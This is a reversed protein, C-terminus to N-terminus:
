PGDTAARVGRGLCGFLCSKGSGQGRTMDEDEADRDAAASWHATSTALAPKVGRRVSVHRSLAKAVCVSSNNSYLTYRLTYASADVQRM